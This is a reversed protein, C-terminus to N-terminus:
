AYWVSNTESKRRSSLKELDYVNESAFFFVAIKEEFGDLAWSNKEKNKDKKKKQEKTTKEQTHSLYNRM